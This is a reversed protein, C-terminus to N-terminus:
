ARSRAIVALDWIGPYTQDRLGGPITIETVRLHLRVGTAAELDSLGEFEILEMGSASNAIHASNAFARGFQDTLTAREVLRGGPGDIRLFLAVHSRTADVGDLHIVYQGYEAASSAAQIRSNPRLDDSIPLLDSRPTMTGEQRGAIPSMSPAFYDFLAVIVAAAVVLVVTAFVLRLRRGGEPRAVRQDSGPPSHRIAFM